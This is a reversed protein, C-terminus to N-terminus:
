ETTIFAAVACLAVHAEFIDHNQLIRVQEIL